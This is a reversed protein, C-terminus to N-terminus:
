PTISYVLLKDKRDRLELKMSYFDWILLTSKIYMQSFGKGKEFMNLNSLYIIDACM